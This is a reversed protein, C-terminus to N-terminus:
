RDLLEALAQPETVMADHGTAIEEPTCGLMEGWGRIREGPHYQPQTCAIYRAPVIVECRSM